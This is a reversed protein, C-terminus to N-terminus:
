QGGELYAHIEDAGIYVGEGRKLKVLNMFFSTALVGVDGPYQRNVKIIIKVLEEDLPVVAEKKQIREVLTCVQSKIAAPDNVSRSILSGFVSKLGEQTPNAVFAEAVQGNGIAEVLEPVSHLFARIQELPRFGVFGTFAVDDGWGGDDTLTDGVAVAIEPKHNADVFERANRANLREALAKEPHAQLPLAKAISLVKFLFPVNNTSPWKKIVAPGLYHNPNTLILELLSQSSSDYVHAAGHPHTGM